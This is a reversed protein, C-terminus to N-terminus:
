ARRRLRRSRSARSPTSAESPTCSSAFARARCTPAPAAPRAPATASTRLLPTTRSPSCRGASTGRRSSTCPSSRRSPPDSPSSVLSLASRPPLCPAAKLSTRRVEERPPPWLPKGRGSAATAPAGLRSSEKLLPRVESAARTLGGGGSEERSMRGRCSSDCGKRAPTTPDTSAATAPPPLKKLTRLAAPKLVYGGSDRFLAHHLQVPLDNTQMNLAAMQVGARWAAQPLPSPRHPFAKTL